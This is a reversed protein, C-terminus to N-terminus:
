DEDDPDREFESPAVYLIRGKRKGVMWGHELVAADIQKATMEPEGHLRCMARVAVRFWRADSVEPASDLVNSLGLCFKPLPWEFPSPAVAQINESAQEATIRPDEM